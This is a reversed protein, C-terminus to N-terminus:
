KGTLALARLLHVRGIDEKNALGIRDLNNKRQVEAVVDANTLDAPAPDHLIPASHISHFPPDHLKVYFFEMSTRCDAVCAPDFNCTRSGCLRTLSGVPLEDVRSSRRVVNRLKDLASLKPVPIDEARSDSILNRFKEAHSNGSLAKM